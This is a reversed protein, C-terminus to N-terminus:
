HIQQQTQGGTVRETLWVAADGEEFNQCSADRNTGSLVFCFGDTVRGQHWDPLVVKEERWSFRLPTMVLAWATAVNQPQYWRLVFESQSM